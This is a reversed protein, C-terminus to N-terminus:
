PGQRQKDVAKPMGPHGSKTGWLWGLFLFFPWALGPIYVGFEVLSQAALGAVGLWVAKERWGILQRRYLVIISGGIAGLFALGAVWGSDSFQELYDNHVLRAMEAEPAKRKRYELSFTGPGSGFIPKAAAIQVAAKWYDLRASASTAGKAFYTSYKLFFGCLGAALLLGLAALKMKRNLRSMLFAAAGMLLCILWGAKSGSGYLCALSLFTFVAMLMLRSPTQLRGSLEWIARLAMPLLLLIAGALANPYVFSSFVRDSLIKKRFEPTDMKARAEPPYQSWDINLFEKRTQELGGFHQDWSFWCVLLLGLVLGIWVPTLRPLRSLAVLGLFFCAVCAVFHGITAHSLPKSVTQSSSFIAWVLWLLLLSLIWKPAPITIKFSAVAVLCLCSLLVYGWRLPWSVLVLEWFSTPTAAQSEFIIPNGFKTITVALWFGLLWAFAAQAYNTRSSAM